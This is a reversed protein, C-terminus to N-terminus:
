GIAPASPRTPPWRADSIAWSRHPDGHRHHPRFFGGMAIVHVSLVRLLDLGCRARCCCCGWAWRPTATCSGCCVNTRVALPKWSIIQVVPREGAVLMGACDALVLGLLPRWLLRVPAWNCGVVIPTCRSPSVPPARLFLIVCVGWWPGGIGDPGAGSAHAADPGCLRWWGICRHPVHPTSHGWDSALLPVAYNRQNRVVRCFARHWRSGDFSVFNLRVPWGSPRSRHCWFGVRAVLWLSAALLWPARSHM